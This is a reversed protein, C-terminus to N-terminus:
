VISIFELVIKILINSKFSGARRSVPISFNIFFVSFFQYLQVKLYSEYFLISINVGALLLRTMLAILHLSVLMSFCTLPSNVLAPRLYLFFTRVRSPLGSIANIPFFITTKISEQKQCPHGKCKLAGAVRLFKQSVLIKFFLFLSM